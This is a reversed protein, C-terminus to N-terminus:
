SKEAWLGQEGCTQKCQPFASPWTLRSVNLKQSLYYHEGYSISRARDRQLFQAVQFIKIENLMECIEKTEQASAMTNQSLEKTDFIAISFLFSNCETVANLQREDEELQM